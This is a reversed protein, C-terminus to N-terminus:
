PSVGTRQEDRHAPLLHPAFQGRCYALWDWVSWGVQVEEGHEDETTEFYTFDPFHAVMWNGEDPKIKEIRRFGNYRYLGGDSDAVLHRISSGNAFSGVYFGTAYQDGPDGDDYKTALVYDGPEFGEADFEISAVILVKSM